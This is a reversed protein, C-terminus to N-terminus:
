VGMGVGIWVGIGGGIGVGVGNMRNLRGNYSREDSKSVWELESAFESGFELEMCGIEVGM